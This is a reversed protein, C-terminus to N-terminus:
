NQEIDLHMRAAEPDCPEYETIEYGPV